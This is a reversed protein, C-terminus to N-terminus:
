AEARWELWSGQPGGIALVKSTVAGDAYRSLTLPFDGNTREVPKRAAGSHADFADGSAPASTPNPYFRRLVNRAGRPLLFHIVGFLMNAPPQGAKIADAIGRLAADRAVGEAFRLYLPANLEVAEHSFFEWYAISDARFEIPM